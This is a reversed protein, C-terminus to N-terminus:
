WSKIKGLLSLLCVCVSFKRNNELKDVNKVFFYMKVGFIHSLRVRLDLSYTKTPYFCINIQRMGGSFLFFPKKKKSAGRYTVNAGPFM